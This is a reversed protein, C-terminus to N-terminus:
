SVKELCIQSQSLWDCHDYMVVSWGIHQLFQVAACPWLDIGMGVRSWGHFFKKGGSGTCM